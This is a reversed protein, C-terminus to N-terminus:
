YVQKIISVALLIGKRYSFARIRGCQIIGRLALSQWHDTKEMSLATICFGQCYVRM